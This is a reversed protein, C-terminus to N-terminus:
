EIRLLKSAKFCSFFQHFNPYIRQFDNFSLSNTFMWYIDMKNVISAIGLYVVFLITIGIAREIIPYEKQM